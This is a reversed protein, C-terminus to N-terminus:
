ALPDSLRAENGLTDDPRGPACSSLPPTVARPKRRPTSPLASVEPTKQGHDPSATWPVSPDLSPATARPSTEPDKTARANGARARVYGPAAGGVAREIAAALAGSREEGAPTIEFSPVPHQEWIAVRWAQENGRARNGGTTTTTTTTTGTMELNASSRM